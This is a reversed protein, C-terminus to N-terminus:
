PQEFGNSFIEYSVIKYFNGGLSSVYVNGDEDEGFSSLFLNGVGHVWEEESWSNDPKAFWIQGTCFDGFIYRGKIASIQGRYRYGGTIACRGQSLSKVLVPETFPPPNNCSVGPTNINGERCNWGYNEGGTSSAPQFNIEELANQGVDGMILDGTLKDFSWRWPNRLGTSWTEDCTDNALADSAFPNDNPIGYINEGTDMGCADDNVTLQGNVDIRLMKGLLTNFTQGSNDPDNGSGGDGMGIYLYGDPGFAMNGGNHNSYPQRIRMVIRGSSADAVNSNAVSVQYREIITHGINPLKKTYNVYFWGNNIFDPHFALGLLGRESGYEVKSQIDLFPTSLLNGSSDIIRIIGTQNIAFLRNSSDGANRIGVNNAIFGIQQLDLAAPIQANAMLAYQFIISVAIIKIM